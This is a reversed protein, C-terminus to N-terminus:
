RADVAGILWQDKVKVLNFRWQRQDVRPTRSGVRPVYRATGNCTAEARDNNTLEIQCRDFSVDQQELRDFARSLSRENVTPWVERAASANLASFAKQYRALTNEIGTQNNEIVASAAPPSAAPPAAPTAASRAPAPAPTPALAATPPVSAGSPSPVAAPPAANRPASATAPPSATVTPPASPPPTSVSPTPAPPVSPAPDPAPAPAAAAAVPPELSPPTANDAAASKPSPSDFGQLPISPSLGRTLGFPDDFYPRPRVNAPPPIVADSVVPPELSALLDPEPAPTPAPAPATVRSPMSLPPSSRENVFVAYMIALMTVTALAAVVQVGGSSEFPAPRQHVAVNDDPWVNSAGNVLPDARHTEAVAPAHVESFFSAYLDASAAPGVEPAPAEVRPSSPSAYIDALEEFNVQPPAPEYDVQYPLAEGSEIQSFLEEFDVEPARERVDADRTSGLHVDASSVHPEAAPQPAPPDGSEEPAFDNIADDNAM